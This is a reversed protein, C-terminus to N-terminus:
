KINEGGLEGFRYNMNVGKEKARDIVYIGNKAKMYFRSFIPENIEVLENFLKQSTVITVLDNNYRYNIIEKAYEIDTETVKDSLFEDIFLVETTQIDYLLNSAKITEKSMILRKVENIFSGWYIMEIDKQHKVGLTNMIIGCLTTKGCGATGFVGYWHKHKELMYSKLYEVMSAKLPVQWKKTIIYDKSTKGSFDKGIPNNKIKWYNARSKSCEPCNMHAVKYYTIAGCDDELVKAIMGKNKCTPCEIGDKLHLDGVQENYDDAVFKEFDYDSMRPQEFDIKRTTFFGSSVYPKIQKKQEAEIKKKAKEMENM